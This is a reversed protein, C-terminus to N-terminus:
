SLMDSGFSDIEPMNPMVRRRAQAPSVVANTHSTPATENKRMIKRAFDNVYYDNSADLVDVVNEDIKVLGHPGNVPLGFRIKSWYITSVRCEPDPRNLCLCAHLNEAFAKSGQADAHSVYRYPPINKIDGQALQHALLISAGFPVAVQTKLEDPLLAMLRWIQEMYKTSPNQALHRNLMLSAYDLAVFGIEMGRVAALNELTAFIEAIGGNGRGGSSKNASFDLFVFNRNFWTKAAAWREREGVLVEANANVALTREYPKLNNRDSMGAWVEAPTKDLFARREIHAAASYLSFNVKEAGDEYCIYVSLKNPNTAAYQQAMRVSVTSLMTTKGGSYPGLLGNIDGPRFGGIYNDIWSITTPVASPPLILHSGEEPMEASNIAEHGINRVAAASRNFDDMLEAFNAPATDDNSYAVLRKLGPKLMRANLFRRLINEIYRREALEEDQSQTKPQFVDAIFGNNNNGLLFEAASPSVRLVGNSVDATLQTLLMAETVPSDPGGLRRYLAVFTRLGEEAANIFLADTFGIRVASRFVTQFRVLGSVLLELENATLPLDDEHESETSRTGARSNRLNTTM